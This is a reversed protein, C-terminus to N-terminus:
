FVFTYKKGKNWKVSSLSEFCRCKKAKAVYDGGIAGEVDECRKYCDCRNPVEKLVKGLTKAKKATGVKIEPCDGLSAPCGAVTVKVKQGEQCGVASVYYYVGPETLRVLADKTAVLEAGELACDQFQQKTAVRHMTAGEAKVKFAVVLTSGAVLEIPKFPKTPVQWKLQELTALEPCDPDVVVVPSPTTLGETPDLTPEPAPSYSDTGRNVMDDQILVGSWPLPQLLAACGDRTGCNKPEKESAM